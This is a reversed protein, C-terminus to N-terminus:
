RADDEFGPVEIRVQYKGRLAQLYAELGDDRREDLLDSRVRDRVADLPPVEGPVDERVYVLHWGYGSRLPGVWQRAPQEFLARGFGDGFLARVDRPALGRQETELMIRDGLEGLDQDLAAQLQALLAEADARADKGRKDESIYVHAFSRAAPIAYDTKNAEFWAELEAETPDVASADKALFELKMALRRRLAEDGQDLGLARAERVLIEDRVRREVLRRREEPTPPRQWTKQFTQELWAVDAQTVVIESERQIAPVDERTAAHLWALLAGLVLFIVLPDLLRSM